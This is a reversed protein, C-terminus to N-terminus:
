SSVRRRTRRTFEKGGRLAEQSIAQGAHQQALCTGPKRSRDDHGILKSGASPCGRTTSVASHYKGSPHEQSSACPPMWTARCAGIAAAAEPILRFVLLVLVRRPPRPSAREAARLPWSRGLGKSPRRLVVGRRPVNSRGIGVRGVTQVEIGSRPGRDVLQPIGSRVVYARIAAREAEAVRWQSRKKRKWQPSRGRRRATFLGLSSLAIVLATKWTM